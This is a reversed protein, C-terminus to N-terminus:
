FANFRWVSGSDYLRTMLLLPRSLCTPQSRLVVYVRSQLGYLTSYVSYLWRINLLVLLLEALSLSSFVNLRTMLLTHM